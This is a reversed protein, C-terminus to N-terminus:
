GGFMEKPNFRFRLDRWVEYRKPPLDFPQCSLIARRANEAASRFFADTAMRGTDTIKVARVSGDRNLQVKIGVVLSEAERAGPELRWCGSMQQTIMRVLEMQELRSTQPQARARSPEPDPAPEAARQEKLKEVNRLISTLRNEPQEPEPPKEPVPLKLKPKERPKPPLKVVEKEPEPDPEPEPEPKAEPEPPPPVEAKEPEPPPPQVPVPAPPIEAHQPEPEPIPQPKKEPVPKPKPKPSPKPAEEELEVLEVPIPPAVEPVSVFSPLGIVLVLIVVVHLTGSLLVGKGM